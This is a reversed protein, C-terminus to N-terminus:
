DQGELFDLSAKMLANLDEVSCITELPFGLCVTNYGRRRSWIGASIDTDAYRLFIGGRSDSPKIGDPNGVWYAEENMTDRYRLIDPIGSLEKSCAAKVTGNNCAQDTVRTFGLVQEAFRRGEAQYLSDPEVPYVRDWLDTGINAGSVLLNGGRSSFRKLAKRM